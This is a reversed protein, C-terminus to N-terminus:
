QRIIGLYKKCRTASHNEVVQQLKSLEDGTLKFQCEMLLALWSPDDEECSEELISLISARSVMGERLLYSAIENDNPRYDCFHEDVDTDQLQGRLALYIDLRDARIAQSIWDPGGVQLATPDLESIVSLLQLVLEVSRNACTSGLCSLVNDRSVALM